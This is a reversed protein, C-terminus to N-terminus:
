ASPKTPWTISSADGVNTIDRLAQMYAAWETPVPENRSYARLTIWDCEGLLRDRKIRVSDWAAAIELADAEAEEAATYPISGTETSHFRAM